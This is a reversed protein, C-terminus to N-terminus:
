CLLGAYWSQYGDRPNKCLMSKDPTPECKPILQCNKVHVGADKQPVVTAIGVGFGRGSPM